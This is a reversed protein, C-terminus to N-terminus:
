GPWGRQLARVLAVVAPHELTTRRAVAAIPRSLEPLRLVADAPVGMAEAVGRPVLAHGFGARAIQVLATFSELRGEVAVSFGWARGRRRLRRELVQWTLSAAEITWVPVVAGAAPQFPRLGAPVLVMAEDGLRVARLEGEAGADACIGLAYDGARVRELLVPGRHAHLELRLGPSADGIQRLVAPLFSSLLSETAAVRVRVDDRPREHVALVERLKLLLPEAEALLREAPATLRVNRGSREVLRVGLQEELAAIRKSVASQTIRLRVAARGTTGAERLARLAELQDIM